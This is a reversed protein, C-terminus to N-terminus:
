NKIFSYLDPTETCIFYSATMRICKQLISDNKM